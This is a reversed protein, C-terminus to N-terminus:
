LCLPRRPSCTVGVTVPGLTVVAVCAAHRAEERELAHTIPSIANGYRKWLPTATDNGARCQPELTSVAVIRRGGVCPVAAIPLPAVAVVRPLVAGAAAGTAKTRGALDMGIPMGFVEILHERQPISVRLVILGRAPVRAIILEYVIRGFPIPVQRMRNLGEVNHGFVAFEAPPACMVVRDMAVLCEKPLVPNTGILNWQQADRRAFPIGGKTNRVSPWKHAMSIASSTGIPYELIHSCLHTCPPAKAYRQPVTM